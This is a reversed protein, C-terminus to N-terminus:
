TVKAGSILKLHYALENAASSEAATGRNARVIVAEGLQFTGSFSIAAASVVALTIAFKMM